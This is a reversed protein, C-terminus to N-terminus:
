VATESLPLCSNPRRSRTLGPPDLRGIPANGPSAPAQLAELLALIAECLRKAAEALGRPTGAGHKTRLLLALNCAAAQILLKKRVEGLGRVRLRRM